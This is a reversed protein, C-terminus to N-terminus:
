ASTENLCRLWGKEARLRTQNMSQNLQDLEEKLIKIQKQVQKPAPSGTHNRAEILTSPNQFASINEPLKSSDHGNEEFAKRLAEKTIFGQDSSLKVARAIINHSERFALGCDRCLLDALDVANMFGTQCHKQMSDKDVELTRYVESLISPADECERVLDMILYKTLQTDRNYGSLAGKQIGLLSQLQGQAFAAKSRIVEAFDPNKKQPM